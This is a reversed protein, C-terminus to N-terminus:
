ILCFSCRICCACLLFGFMGLMLNERKTKGMEYSSICWLNLSNSPAHQSIFLMKDISFEYDGTTIHVYNIIINNNWCTKMETSKERPQSKSFKVSNECDPWNAIRKHRMAPFVRSAFSSSSVFQLPFFTSHKELPVCNNM